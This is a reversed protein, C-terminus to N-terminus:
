HCVLFTVEVVSSISGMPKNSNGSADLELSSKGCFTVTRPKGLVYETSEATLTVTMDPNRDLNELLSLGDSGKIM